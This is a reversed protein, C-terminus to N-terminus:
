ASSPMRSQRKDRPSPSTYLLCTHLIEPPNEKERSIFSRVCIGLVKTALFTPTGHQFLFPFCFCFCLTRVYLSSGASVLYMRIQYMFVYRTDYQRLTRCCYRNASGGSFGLNTSCVCLNKPPSPAWYQPIVWTPIPFESREFVYFSVTATAVVLSLQYIYSDDSTHTWPRFTRTIGGGM